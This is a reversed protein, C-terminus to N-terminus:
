KSATMRAEPNLTTSGPILPVMDTFRSTMKIETISSDGASVRTSPHTAM